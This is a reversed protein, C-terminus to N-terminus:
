KITRFSNNEINNMRLGHLDQNISYYTQANNAQEVISFYILVGLTAVLGVVAVLYGALGDVSMLCRNIGNVKEYAM